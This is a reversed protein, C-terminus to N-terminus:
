KFFQRFCRSKFSKWPESSGSYVNVRSYLRALGYFRSVFSKKAVNPKCDYWYCTKLRTSKILVNGYIEPVVLYTPNCFFAMPKMLRPARVKQIIDHPISHCCVSISHEFNGSRVNISTVSKMYRSVLLHSLVSSISRNRLLLVTINFM